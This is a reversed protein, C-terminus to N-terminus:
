RWHARRPPLFPLSLALALALPCPSSFDHRSPPAPPTATPLRGSPRAARNPRSSRPALGAPGQPSRGGRLRLTWQRKQPSWRRGRTSRPRPRTSAQRSQSVERTHVRLTPQLEQRGEAIPAVVHLNALVKPGARWIRAPCNQPNKYCASSGTTKKRNSGSAAAVRICFAGMAAFMTGHTKASALGCSKRLAIKPPRTTKQRNSGSAAAVCICFAGMAAFMTGHTEASALGGGQSGSRFIWM